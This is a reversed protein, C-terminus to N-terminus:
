RWFRLTAKPYRRCFEAITALYHMAGEYNGWGNEPNMARYADPDAKMHEVAWELPPGAHCGSKGDFQALGGPWGASELAKHWMPSVNSTYNGCGVYRGDETPYSIEDPAGEGEMWFDYSM